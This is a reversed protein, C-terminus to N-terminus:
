RWPYKIKQIKLSLKAEKKAKKQSQRSLTVFACQLKKACSEKAAEASKARVIERGRQKNKERKGKRTQRNIRDLKSDSQQKTATVWVIIKANEHAAAIAALKRKSKRQAKARWGARGRETERETERKRAQWCSFTKKLTCRSWKFQLM